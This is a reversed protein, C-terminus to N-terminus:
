LPWSLSVALLCPAFCDKCIEACEKPMRCHDAQGCLCVTTLLCRAAWVNEHLMRPKAPAASASCCLAAAGASCAKVGGPLTWFGGAAGQVGVWSSRFRLKRGRRM